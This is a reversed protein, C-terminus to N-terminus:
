VMYMVAVMLSVTVVIRGYFIGFTNSTGQVDISSVEPSAGGVEADSSDKAESPGSSVPVTVTFTATNSSEQLDRKMIGDDVVHHDLLLRGRRRGLYDMKVKGVVSLDAPDAGSFYSGLLQMKLKCVSATTNVAQCSSKAWYSDVFNSVYDFSKTGNQSITTDKIKAVEFVSGDETEVCIQLSDGQTLALPSPNEHFTDNCQYATINEDVDIIGVGGDGAQTRVVDATTSFGTTLEVQINYITEIFNFLIGNSSNTYLSLKLCFDVDGGTSNATWLNSSQVITQNYIFTAELSNSVYTTNILPLGSSQTLCDPKFVELTYDRDAM